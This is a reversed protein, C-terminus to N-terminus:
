AHNKICSIVHDLDSKELDYFFPLRLLCDEYRDSHFRTYGQYNETFFPSKCLSLYHFVAHIGSGKLGNIMAKRKEFNSFTLYFMHANNTAYDPVKPLNYNDTSKLEDNYYNWIEKRRNQIDELSELQAWLFAAIIESPLFSSGVDVWGYKNVEGRFFASRNTGKEWIIEAREAMTTDNVVLM